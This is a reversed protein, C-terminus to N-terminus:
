RRGRRANVLDALESTTEAGEVEATDRELLEDLTDRAADVVVAASPPPTPQPPNQARRRRRALLGGCTLAMIFAAVGAIIEAGLDSM